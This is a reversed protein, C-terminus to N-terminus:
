TSLLELPLPWNEKVNLDMWNWSTINLIILVYHLVRLMFHDKLILLSLILMNKNLEKIVSVFGVLVIIKM